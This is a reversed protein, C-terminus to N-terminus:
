PLMTRLGFGLGAEGSVRPVSRTDDLLLSHLQTVKAGLLPPSLLNRKKRSFVYDMRKM